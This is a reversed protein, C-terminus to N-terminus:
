CTESIERVVERTFRLHKIGILTLTWGRQQIFIPCVLLLALSYVFLIMTSLTFYLTTFKSYVRYCIFVVQMFIMKGLRVINYPDQPYLHCLLLMAEFSSVSEQQEIKDFVLYCDIWCMACNYLAAWKSVFKDIDSIFTLIFKCSKVMKHLKLAAFGPIFMNQFFFIM